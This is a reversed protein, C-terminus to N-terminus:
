QAGGVALTMINESTINEGALEGALRGEHFVLVRDSIAILEEMESSVMLIGRGAAALQLILHYIEEKTGVDVGRTPEDLMLVKGDTALWKGLVVKQQNGGSLNRVRVDLAPTRVRLKDAQQRAVAAEAARNVLGFRALREKIALVINDAIGLELVLGQTKRDEPVLAIGATVADRASRIRCSQGAVEIQGSEVPDIGFIARLVETRGAGVLGGVGVVEGARVEFSVEHPSSAIRLDRVRLVVDGPHAARREDRGFFHNVDRGVMLRVMRDHTIEGAELIGVHAGDRLVQVRQCLRTIEGLRHSVYIIGLGRSKLEEIRAFLIEAEHTSLSSTPEDFVLLRADQSLAKAIEVLQKQGPSLEALIVGSDVHLGVEALAAAAATRLRRQDRLGFWAPGRTPQRGLFINEALSLNDALNLEQHIVAIGAAISDHADRFRVERGDVRLEGADPPHIGGIIKILTSKGAGNEGILGLVEGARLELGVARLAQVGPFSKSVNRVALLPEPGAASPTTTSEAEAAMSGTRCHRILFSSHRLSASHRIGIPGNAM